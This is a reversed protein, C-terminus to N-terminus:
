DNVECTIKTCDRCNKAALSFADAATAKNNAMKDDAAKDAEVDSSSANTTCSWNKSMDTPTSAAFSLTSLSILLSGAVLTYLKMIQM